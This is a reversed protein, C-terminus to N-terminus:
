HTWLYISLYISPPLHKLIFYKFNFIWKEAWIQWQTVLESWWVIHILTKIIFVLLVDWFYCTNRQLILDSWFYTPTEPRSWIHRNHTYHPSPHSSFCWRRWRLRLEPIDLFRTNKLIDLSEWVLLTEGRVTCAHLKECAPPDDDICRYHVRFLFLEVVCIMGTPNYRSYGEEHSNCRYLNELSSFSTKTRM